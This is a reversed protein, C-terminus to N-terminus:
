RVFSGAIRYTAVVARAVGGLGQKIDEKLDNLVSEAKSM